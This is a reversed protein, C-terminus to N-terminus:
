EFRKKLVAPTYDHDIFFCTNNHYVSKKQWARRIVEKGQVRHAREIRVEMDESIDLTERLLKELFGCMNDGEDKEPIGYIRLNDRRARGEQDDLKAETNAQPQMLKKMLRGMAQLLTEAEEIRGEAEDLRENTRRQEAKM